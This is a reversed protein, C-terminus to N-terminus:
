IGWEGINQDIKAEFHFKTGGLFWLCKHKHCSRGCWSYHLGVIEVKIRTIKPSAASANRLQTNADETGEKEEMNNIKENFIRNITM